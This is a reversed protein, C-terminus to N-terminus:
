KTVRAVTQAVPGAHAGTILPLDLFTKVGPGAECMRLAERGVGGTAWQVVKYAM